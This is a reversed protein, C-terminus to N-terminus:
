EEGMQVYAKVTATGQKLGTATGDEAIQLVSEDSSEYSVNRVAPLVNANGNVVVNEGEGVHVEGADMDITTANLKLGGDYLNQDLTVNKCGRFSYLNASM